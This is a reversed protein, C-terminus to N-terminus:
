SGEGRGGGGGRKRQGKNAVTLASPLRNMWGHPALVGAFLHTEKRRRRSM